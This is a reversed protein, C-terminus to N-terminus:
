LTNLPTFLALSEQPRIIRSRAGGGVDALQREKEKKDGQDLKSVPSPPPPTPPPALFWILRGRSLM